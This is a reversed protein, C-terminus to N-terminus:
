REAEPPHLQLFAPGTLPGAKNKGQWRGQHCNLFVAIGFSCRLLFGAEAMEPRVTEVASLLRLRERKGKILAAM